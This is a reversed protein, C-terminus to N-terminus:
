VTVVPLPPQVLSVLIGMLTELQDIYYDRQDVYATQNSLRLFKWQNGTTVAGYIQTLPQGERENFIRAAVMAALCQGLGGKINENKAEFIILAPASIYLQQQSLSIIFDCFGVLDQAPDVSFEVGSFLSIQDNLLRKLQVLMPAIVMESRAKETNISLALPVSYNLYNTFEQTLPLPKSVRIFLDQNSEIALGFQKRVRELTFDKYSM